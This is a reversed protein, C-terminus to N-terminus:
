DCSSYKMLYFGFSEEMQPFKRFYPHRGANQDFKKQYLGINFKVSGPIFPTFVM